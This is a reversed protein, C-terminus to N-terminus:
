PAAKDYRVLVEKSNFAFSGEVRVTGDTTLTAPEQEASTQGDELFILRRRTGETQEADLRFTGRLVKENVEFDELHLELGRFVYRETVEMSDTSVSSFYSLTADLDAGGGAQCSSCSALTGDAGLPIAIFITTNIEKRQPTLGIAGNSVCSFFLMAGDNERVSRSGSGFFRVEDGLEVRPEGVIDFSFTSATFTADLGEDEDNGGILSCGASLLSLAVLFVRSYRMM